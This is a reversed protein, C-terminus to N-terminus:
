LKSYDIAGTTTGDVTYDELAVFCDAYNVWYDSIVYSELMTRPVFITPDPSSNFIAEPLHPVGNVGRIILRELGSDYFASKDILGFGYDSTGRIDIERLRSCGRFAYSDIEAVEPARFIELNTCGEFARNSIRIVSQFYAERLQLCYAFACSDIKIVNPFDIKQLKTLENFTYTKIYTVRDNTYDGISGDIIADEDEHTALERIKDPFDDAVISSSLGTKSRIADAIAAFLSTLSSHKAM